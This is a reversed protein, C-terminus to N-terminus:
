LARKEQGRRMWDKKAKQWAAFFERNEPNRRAQEVGEVVFAGFVGIVLGLFGGMVLIVKARRSPSSPEIAPDVITVIPLDRSADIRAQALGGTLIEFIQEKELFERYLRAYDVGLEPAERLSVFVDGGEGNSGRTGGRTLRGLQGRLSGLESAVARYRPNEPTAFRRLQALELEREMIAQRLEAAAEITQRAQEEVQPLMRGRQFDVLQDEAAELEGRAEALKTQLFEEKRRALQDSLQAILRNLQRPYANAISAALVPDEDRVQITIAGTDDTEFRTRDVLRARAAESSSLNWRERLRQEAAVTDALTRSELVVHVIEENSSSASMPNLAVPLRAAMAAFQANLKGEEQNPLVVVSAFYMESRLWVALITALLIAALTAAVVSWRRLVVTALDLVRVDARRDSRDEHPSM